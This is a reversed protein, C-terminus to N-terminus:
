TKGNVKWIIELAKELLEDRGEIIGQITPLLQIDPVIGIQQTETKDPYYVGIGSIWSNIGGPLVITSVNGDAGATTSGVVTTNPAARFAMTTYEAQSQTTENILIVIKGKYYDPNKKGVSLSETFTFLGPIKVSGHTFRAFPTAEPMLKEGLSFVIFDSPYCRLDIILGKTDKVKNWLEHIEGRKLSGPFLYAIDNQLLKFSTDSTSLFHANIENSKYTTLTVKNHLNNRIYEVDISQANTRLLDQAINRLQTPYNSAPTFPLREEIITEITKGSIETLIDGIQLGTHKGYGENYFGTVVAKNEIFRIRPAAYFGGKYKEVEYNNMVTAHTDHIHAILALTTLAYKTEDNAKIFQPIFEELVDKWDQEILNKYPFYYQISNWYRFLSLLRYGMDSIIANEYAKENTFQPNKVGPVFQIYHHSDKRKARRIDNLKKVLEKSFGSQNIWDLDPKIKIKDDPQNDTKETKFKGLLDIWESFIKDKEKRSNKDIVKPIIRFLEYDWNYAGEAIAPHHYKLFGWILGVEKLTNINDSNIAIESIQSSYDFENDSSPTQNRSCSINLIALTIIFVFCCVRKM